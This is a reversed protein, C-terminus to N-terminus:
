YPNGCKTCYSHSVTRTAGCFGCFGGATQNAPEMQAAAAPERQAVTTLNLAEANPAISPGRLAALLASADLQLRQPTDSTLSFVAEADDFVFRVLCDIHRRTTLTNMLSAFAAGELAGSIGFGGGVWGGGTTYEGIGGLQVARLRDAPKLLVSGLGTACIGRGSVAVVCEEGPELETGYGGVHTGVLMLPRQAPAINDFASTCLQAHALVGDVLAKARDAYTRGILFRVSKTESLALTLGDTTTFVGVINRVTGHAYPTGGHRDAIWWQKPTVIFRPSLNLRPMRLDRSVIRGTAMALLVPDSAGKRRVFQRATALIEDDPRGLVGVGIAPMGSPSAMLLM